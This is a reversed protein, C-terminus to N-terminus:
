LHRFRRRVIFVSGALLFLSVGFLLTRQLTLSYYLRVLLSPRELPISEPSGYLVTSAWFFPSSRGPHRSLYRAQATQLAVDKPTGQGLLRYFSRTLEVAADDDVPWLNSVTSRAGMARFAYQLGEMGEGSRLTGEATSCGSLFVLPIDDADSQIEHLFLWGDARSSGSSDGPALAFANYLPSSAHVFAHSALHLIKAEDEAAHFASETADDDLAFRGGAVLSRLSQLERRVGPLSALQIESADPGAGSGVGPMASRLATPISRPHDFRSVGFAALAHTKSGFVAPSTEADTLLSASLEVSTAYRDLLFSADDYAFRRAPRESVLMPFPLRFLPGDPIVVVRNSRLHPEVPAFLREHLDHLPRLDFHAASISTPRSTEPAFLPSVSSLTTSVSEEDVGPLPVTRLTDATLVFAHSRSPRDFFSAPEDLFYSVVARHDRRLLAQISDLQVTYEANGLVLLERRGSILQSELARLSDTDANPAEGLRVRVDTLAQTLSDFRVRDRPSLKQSVKSQIRLDTLHRARTKELIRFAEYPRDQAILVRVLGRYVEQWESFATLSWQTARLSSRYEEVVDIARRYYSESAEWAGQMERSFALKELTRRQFDLNRLQEALSLSRHLDDVAADWNGRRQEIRGRQLLVYMQQFFVETRRAWRLARQNYALASDLEDLATSADALLALQRGYLESDVDSFIRVGERALSLVKRLEGDEPHGSAFERELVLDAVRNLARARLERLDPDPSTHRLINEARRYYREASEFDQLRQYIAGVDMMLTVRRELDSEPVARFANLYDAVASTLDGLRYHLYGRAWYMESIQDELSARLPAPLSDSVPQFRDFFAAFTEFAKPFRQLKAYVAAEHWYTYGVQDLQRSGYCSRIDPFLKAQVRLSDMPRSKGQIWARELGWDVDQTAREYVADCRAASSAPQAATINRLPFVLLLGLCLALTLRSSFLTDSM